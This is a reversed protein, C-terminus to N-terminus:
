MYMYLRVVTVSVLKVHVGTCAHISGEFGPLQRFITLPFSLGYKSDLKIVMAVHMSM